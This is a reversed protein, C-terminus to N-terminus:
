IILKVLDGVDAGTTKYTLAKFVQVCAKHGIVVSREAIKKTRHYNQIDPDLSVAGIHVPLMAERCEPPEIVCVPELMDVKIRAPRWVPVRVRFSLFPAELGSRSKAGPKVSGGFGLDYISQSTVGLDIEVDDTLSDENRDLIDEATGTSFVLMPARRMNVISKLRFLFNAAGQLVEPEEGWRAALINHSLHEPSPLEHSPGPVLRRAADLRSAPNPFRSEFVEYFNSFTGTHYESIVRM